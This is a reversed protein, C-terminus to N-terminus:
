YNYLTVVGSLAANTTSNKINTLAAGGTAQTSKVLIQDASFYSYTINAGLATSTPATAFVPTITLTLGDTSLAGIAKPTGATLTGNSAVLNALFQTTTLTVPKNFTITLVGTSTALGPTQNSASTAFLAAYTNAMTIYQDTSGTDTRFSATSAETFESTALATAIYAGGPVLTAGSFTAIGSADTTASLNSILGATPNLRDGTNSTVNNNVVDQVLQVVENAVPNGNARVHVRVDGATSGEPFLYINGIGNIVTNVTDWNPNGLAFAALLSYDAEFRQFGSKVVVIKFRSEYSSTEQAQGTALYVPIGSFAYEGVLPNKSDTILKSPGRNDTGQILWIKLESDTDNGIPAGTLANMIKGQLTGTKSYDQTGPYTTLSSNDTKGCGFFAVTLLLLSMVVFLKKM